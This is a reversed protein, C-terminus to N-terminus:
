YKSPRDAKAAEEAIIKKVQPNAAIQIMMSLYMEANARERFWAYQGAYNPVFVDFGGGAVM